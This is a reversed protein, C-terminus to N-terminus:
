NSWPFATETLQAERIKKELVFNIQIQLGEIQGTKGNIWEIVQNESLNNYEIFNNADPDDLVVSSELSFSVGSNTGTLTFDVQKVVNTLNNVTTTLIKNIKTEFVTTM